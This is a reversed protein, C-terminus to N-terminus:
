KRPESVLRQYPKLTIRYCDAVLSQRFLSDLASEAIVVTRLKVAMKNTSFVNKARLERLRKQVSEINRIHAKNCQNFM